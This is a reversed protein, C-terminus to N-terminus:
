GMKEMFAKELRNIINFVPEISYDWEDCEMLYEEVNANDLVMGTLDEINDMVKKFVENFQKM